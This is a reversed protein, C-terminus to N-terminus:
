FRVLYDTNSVLATLELQLTIPNTLSRWSPLNGQVTHGGNFNTLSSWRFYKTLNPITNTKEKKRNRLYSIGRETKQQFLM